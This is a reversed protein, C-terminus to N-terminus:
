ELISVDNLILRDPAIIYIGKVWSRAGIYLNESMLPIMPVNELLYKQIELYAAAREKAGPISRAADLLGTLEDTVFQSPSSGDIFRYTLIDPDVWLYGSFGMQYDGAIMTDYIYGLDHQSIKIDIGIAKLQAQVVPAADVEMVSGSDVLFEVSFPKGDKEVIGDGNSDEWGAEALLSKAAEVDFPYLSKSFEQAAPDYAIMSPNVFGYEATMNGNLATELQERNVAMAVAKRVNIDDFPAASTNMSIGTMGATVVKFIQYDPNGEMNKASSAPLGFAIDISGAELENARTQGDAIFRVLVEDLHAMGKNEVFPMNTKYSENRVLELDQGPVWPTKIKFPGSAVPNSAFAEDGATNAASVNWPAGFSTMFAPLMVNFGIENVVEVTTSDIVAASQMGDYDFNYPSIAAYRNIADVMAQSDLADGNSYQYDAPLKMTMTTGDASITFSELLDPVFIGAAPDYRLLPQSILEHSLPYGGFSQQGDLIDPTFMDAIILKTRPSEGGSDAQPACATVLLVILLFMSLINLRKM